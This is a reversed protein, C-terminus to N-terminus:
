FSWDLGVVLSQGPELIRQGTFPNKANLHDAYAEDTLNRLECTLELGAGLRGGGRLDVQTAGETPVEFRRAAIRNQDDVVRGHAEIWWRQSPARAGISLRVTRPELGLVPEDFQEDTGRVWDMGASWYFWEGVIGHLMVEGGYFEAQSGNVYRYVVPPSLPLRRALSPDALITIYDDVVRYFTEVSVAVPGASGVLGLDLETSTEAELGPNGMFEAALQFKTSPFRDSYLELATPSRAVRGLGATFLWRDNLQFSTSVAVSLHTESQDLGGVTNALFFPSPRGATAGFRDLRVTGGFRLRGAGGILQAFGGLNDLRVDPWVTDQFLVFGNDRRAVTRDADQDLRYFDTGVKLELEGLAFELWSRGGITNAETTIGVDLAFPPKRGPAPQATPKEDNNMRHDKGNSYLQAYLERLKGDSPTWTLDLVHSRTYFYTADLLRGPFDLDNQKQYGGSYDLRTQDNPRFGILWRTEASEYDGPVVTGDGDEYDEGERDSHSLYFRFRDNSGWIGGAAEVGNAVDDYVGHLRGGVNLSGANFEPRFTDVRVASMAGAGWSLAHPGKIVSIRDVSFPSVHSLGSDMRAPGAAFTRTGDVFLAVQTEQLGRVAPELNIGGRRKASMGGEDRLRMALDQGGHRQLDGGSLSVQTALEPLSSTVSIEQRFTRRSLTVEMEASLDLSELRRERSSYGEAVVVVKWAAAPSTVPVSGGDPSEPVVMAFRGDADCRDSAVVKEGRLLSVEADAVPGSRDVVRGKLVRESEAAVSGVAVVSVALCVVVIRVIWEMWRM